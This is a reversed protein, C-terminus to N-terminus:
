TGASRGGIVWEDGGWDVLDARSELFKRLRESVIVEKPHHPLYKHYKVAIVGDFMKKFEEVSRVVEDEPIGEIGFLVYSWIEVEMGKRKLTRRLDALRFLESDPIGKRLYNLRLEEDRVEFGVRIILKGPRLLNMLGKVHEETVFEPREEVEFVRGKSLAGLRLAIDLPLENFSGGNFVAVRNVGEEEVLRIAQDILEKDTELVEKINVSQELAFPCFSCKGWSCPYSKLIIVVRRGLRDKFRFVGIM